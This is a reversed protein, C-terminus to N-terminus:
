MILTRARNCAFRSAGSACICRYAPGASIQSRTRLTGSEHSTNVHRMAPGAAGMAVSTKSPAAPNSVRPAAAIEARLQGLQWQGKVDRIYRGRLSFEAPCGLPAQLVNAAGPGWSDNLKVTKDIWCNM